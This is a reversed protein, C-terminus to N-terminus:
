FEEVTKLTTGEISILPSLATSGPAPQLLVETIGLGITLGFLCSPEAFKDVILQLDSEKHAMLAYDNAFLEKLIMRELTKTKTSLHKLNFLSGDFRYRLYVGHDLDRVAPTLVCTIFLNFLVPPLM